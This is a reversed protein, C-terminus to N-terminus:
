TEAAAPGSEDLSKFEIQKGEINKIKLTSGDLKYLQATELFKHYESEAQMAGEPGMMMTSAIPGFGIKGSTDAAYSANYRNVVKGYSRMDNADFSLTVDVGNITTIFNQGKLLEPNQQTQNSNDCATLAVLSIAIALNRLKM